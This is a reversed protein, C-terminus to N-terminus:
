PGPGGSYGMGYGNFVLNFYYRNAGLSNAKFEQHKLNLQNNLYMFGPGAMSGRNDLFWVCDRTGIRFNDGNGAAICVIQSM